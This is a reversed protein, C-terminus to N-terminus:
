NTLSPYDHPVRGGSRTTIAHAARLVYTAIDDVDAAKLDDGIGLLAIYLCPREDRDFVPFGLVNLEPRYEGYVAGFGRARIDDLIPDPSDEGGTEEPAWARELRGLLPSQYFRSGVEITVKVAKRSEIKAVATFYGDRMPQIALCALGTQEALSQMFPQAEAVCTTRTLAAIGFEVLLPGLGYRRTRSDYRVFGEADMTRLLNSATSKALACREALETLSSGTPAAVIAELM